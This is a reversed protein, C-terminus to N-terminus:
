RSKRTVNVSKMIDLTLMDGDMEPNLFKVTGDVRVGFHTCFPAAWFASTGRNTKADTQNPSHGFPESIRRM